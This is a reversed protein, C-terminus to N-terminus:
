CGLWDAHDVEDDLMAYALAGLRTMLGEPLPVSRLAFDITEDPSTQAASAPQVHTLPVRNGASHRPHHFSPLFSAHSM